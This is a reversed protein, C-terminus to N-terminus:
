RSSKGRVEVPRLRCRGSRHPTGGSIPDQHRNSILLNVNAGESSYPSYGPLDLEECGQWWGHQAVVVGPVISPNLRARARIAGEPTEVAVWAGGAVGARAATEPHLEV